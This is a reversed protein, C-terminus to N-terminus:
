AFSFLKTPEVFALPVTLQADEEEVSRKIPPPRSGMDDDDDHEGVTKTDLGLELEQDWMRKNTVDRWRILSELKGLPADIWHAHKAVSPHWHNQLGKIEWLSSEHARCSKPDKSEADFVDVTADGPEERHVLFEITPYRILISRMLKQLPLQMEVPATLTCRALRKVFACVLYEPLHSSALFLNLLRFFTTRHESYCLRSNIMGYVTVYFDPFDFNHEHILIFLGHLACYSYPEGHAFSRVYFDTLLDPESLAQLIGVDAISVLAQRLVPAPLKLRSFSVWM